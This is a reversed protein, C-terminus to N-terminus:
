AKTELTQNLEDAVEPVSLRDAGLFGALEDANYRRGERWRDRLFRGARRSRFWDEEYERELFRRLGIELAAGRLRDRAGLRGDGIALHEEPFVRLRLAGSFLEVYREALAEPERERYLAREYLVETAARRLRYLRGFSALRALEHPDDVDLQRRLWAANETLRSLLVAYAETVAGDGLRRAAFSQTRDVVAYQEARGVQELLERHDSLGGRPAIVAVVQDPVAIPACFGEPCKSARAELDLGVNSQDELRVGLDALARHITPLLRQNPLLRDHERGRLLWVLDVEWVDAGDLGHHVLQDRLAQEYADATNRLFDEALAADEPATQGLGDRLEVVDRFGLEACAGNLAALREWRIPNSRATEARVLEDFAHRRGMDPENAQVSAAARYPVDQGLWSIAARAEGAAIQETLARGACELVNTAVFGLLAQQRAPEMPLDHVRGYAAVSVIQPYRDYALATDLGVQLGARHVYWARELATSFAEADREFQAPVM